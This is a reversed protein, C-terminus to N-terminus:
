ETEKTPNASTNLHDACLAVKMSLERVGGGMIEVALNQCEPHDCRVESPNRKEQARREADTLEKLVMTGGGPIPYVVLLLALM